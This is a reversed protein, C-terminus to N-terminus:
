VFVSQRRREHGAILALRSRNNGRHRVHRKHSSADVANVMAGWIMDGSESLLGRERLVDSLRLYRRAQTIHATENM